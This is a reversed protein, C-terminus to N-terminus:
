KTAGWWQCGSLIEFGLLIMFVKVTDSAVTCPIHSSIFINISELYGVTFLYKPGGDQDSTSTWLIIEEELWCNSFDVNSFDVLLWDEEGFILKWTEDFWGVFLRCVLVGNM